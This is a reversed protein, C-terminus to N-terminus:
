KLTGGNDMMHDLILDSADDFATSARFAELLCRPLDARKIQGTSRDWIAKSVTFNDCEYQADLMAQFTIMSLYRNDSFEKVVAKEISKDYEQRRKFYVVCEVEIGDKCICPSCQIDDVLGVKAAKAIKPTVYDRMKDYTQNAKRENCAFFLTINLLDTYM